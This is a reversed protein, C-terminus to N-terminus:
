LINGVINLLDMTSSSWKQSINTNATFNEFAMKLTIIERSEVKKQSTSYPVIEYEQVVGDNLSGM